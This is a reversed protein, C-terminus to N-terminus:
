HAPQRLHNAASMRNEVGLKRYIHQLHKKVTEETCGLIRGIEWNSKGKDVWQLVELERDTLSGLPKTTESSEEEAAPMAICFNM